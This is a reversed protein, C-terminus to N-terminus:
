RSGGAKEKKEVVCYIGEGGMGPGFCQNDSLCAARRLDGGAWRKVLHPERIFPRSMSIYDATGEGVLREAVAFSRIGGVLMLPIRITKKFARAADQFYAEQEESKIGARSPSLRKSILTGGSLEIADIGGEELLEGARVSDALTFGGELYDESNLKVLVPFDPGVAARVKGVVELVARARNEISGGYGDERRNFAPSLFQSLLYGHAAHVEVGDFEAAKAREAARAFAEVLEHIDGPSMAKTPSGAFKEVRSVALVARGPGPVGFLGAHAIQVVIRGGAEHVAQTMQRLPPILEDGYIGLQWPTAQGDQRVYAHSTIILGVGGQALERMLETLRPTCAGEGTAMGEWTASRVFRNQLGMGKIYTMEFLRSM